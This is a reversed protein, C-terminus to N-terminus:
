NLIMNKKEAILLQLKRARPETVMSTTMQAAGELLLAEIEESKVRRPQM